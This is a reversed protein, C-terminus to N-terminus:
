RNLRAPRQSCVKQLSSVSVDDAVARQQAPANAIQANVDNLSGVGHRIKV